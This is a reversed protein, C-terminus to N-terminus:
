ITVTLARAVAEQWGRCAGAAWHQGTLESGLTGHLMAVARDFAPQATPPRPAGIASRLATAAGFLVAAEALWVTSGAMAGAVLAMAVGELCEAIRWKNPVARHFALCEQYLRIATAHEGQEHALLALIGTAIAASWQAGVQRSLALSEEAMITAQEFQGQLTAAQALISLSWATSWTDKLHARSLVLCEGALATAQDFNGQEMQVVSNRNLGVLLGWSDGLTRCLTCSESFYLAAQQYHGQDREVQGLLDLATSVGRMDKLERFLALSEEVLIRARGYDDQMEAVMGLLIQTNAIGPKYNLGYYLDLSETAHAVASPYNGQYYTLYGIGFVVKAQLDPPLDGTTRVLNLWYLGETLYGRIRWFRWLEGAIRAGVEHRQVLNGGAVNLSWSLAMRLNDHEQELQALWETQESGQLAQEAQDALAAYWQLHRDCVAETEGREALREKSYQRVTELLHYYTVGAPHAHDDVNLWSKETLAGLVDLVAWEDLPPDACIALTAAQTSGGAFVSLRALLQQETANLLDWSWDLAARLTQQRPLAMRPGRTLLRFRDDLRAAIVSTPLLGIWAAALEIALPIGDLRTCIEALGNTNESDLAFEPVREQARAIFLRVAEYSALLEPTIPQHAPPATLSPVQYRQEGALRLAERSTALIHLDPCTSLLTTVLSACATVLHECNDLVLLLQRTRLYAILTTLLLQNAEPRVGLATAVADPVLVPDALAALEM